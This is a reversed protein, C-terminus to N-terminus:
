FKAAFRRTAVGARGAGNGLEPWLWARPVDADAAEELNKEHGALEHRAAGAM